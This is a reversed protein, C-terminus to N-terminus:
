AIVGGGLCVKGKYLVISQGSAVAKQPRAFRILYLDKASKEVVLDQLDQQHRFRGKCKLPLKLDDVLWNTGSIQLEQVLFEKLEPNKSVVLQNKKLDKKMVYFPGEGGIGLGQRQGITYFAIGRHKGVVRGAEDVIEGAKPKIKQTLFRELQIKGVFCLGMSEKRDANPLKLKKALKKIETKKFGGIPFLIHGLQEKKINYIFYTQDKFEDKSRILKDDKIQAYHGTALYDFGMEMAKEYLLKFKIEKNCMVDPNPTRGAKYEEFFYQMVRQQYQKEFDFTHLPIGLHAAVKLAERRDDLWPCENRLLGETSSWNKMFAAEVEYGQELLLAASVASDIGGSLAMMVKKKQKLRTRAM